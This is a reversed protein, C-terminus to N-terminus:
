VVEDKAATEADEFSDEATDKDNSIEELVDRIERDLIDIQALTLSEIREQVRNPVALMGARVFRLVDCWEREVDESKVLEGRTQSNKISAGDAQEKALRARENTLDLQAAEGGRGAATESVSKYASCISEKLLYKGRSKRKIVGREALASVRRTSIGLLEALDTASCTESLQM